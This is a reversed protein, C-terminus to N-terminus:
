LLVVRIKFWEVRNVLQGGAAALTILFGRLVADSNVQVTMVLSQMGLDHCSFGCSGGCSKCQWSAAYSEPLRAKGLAQFLSDRGNNRQLLGVRLGASIGTGVLLYWLLSPIVVLALM